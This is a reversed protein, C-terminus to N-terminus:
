DVDCETFLIGGLDTLRGSSLSICCLGEAEAAAKIKECDPHAELSGLFFVCSEYVGAAGGIFGFNHPPLAIHGENILTVRIGHQSLARAMGCDATIAASDSLKLVTCKPYGQNVNILNYGQKKASEKISESLSPLKAFISKGFILANLACDSPYKESLEDSSFTLKRGKFLPYLASFLEPYEECYEATFILENELSFLLMDTHSCVAESLRKHPPLKIVKFGRRVLSLECERDIRGDVIATKIKM